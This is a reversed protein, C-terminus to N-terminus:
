MGGMREGAGRGGGGEHGAGRCSEGGRVQGGARGEDAETVAASEAVQHKVLLRLRARESALHAQADPADESADRLLSVYKECKPFHM